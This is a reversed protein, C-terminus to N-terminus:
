KLCEGISGEICRTGDVWRADTLDTRSFDAGEIHATQLNAHRFSVFALNANSFNTNTFIGRDLVSYILDARSFDANIFDSNNLTAQKLLSDALNTSKFSVTSGTCYSLDSQTLNAGDFIANGLNPLM